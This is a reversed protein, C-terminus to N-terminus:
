HMTQFAENTMQVFDKTLHETSHLRSVSQSEASGCPAETVANPHPARLDATAVEEQTSLPAAPLSPSTEMWGESREM